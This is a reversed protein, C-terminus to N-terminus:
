GAILQDITPLSDRDAKRANGVINFAASRSRPDEALKKIIINEAERITRADVIVRTTQDTGLFRIAAIKAM